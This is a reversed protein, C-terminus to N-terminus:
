DVFYESTTAGRLPLTSQFKRRALNRKSNTLREGYPSRPNFDGSFYNEFYPKLREGYPSRPNFDGLLQRIETVKM